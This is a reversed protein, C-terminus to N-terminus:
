DESIGLAPQEGLVETAIVGGGQTEISAVGLEIVDDPTENHIDENTNMETEQTQAM